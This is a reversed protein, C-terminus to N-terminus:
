SFGNLHVRLRGLLKFKDFCKSPSFAFVAVTKPETQSNVKRDGTSALVVGIKRSIYPVGSAIYKKSPL